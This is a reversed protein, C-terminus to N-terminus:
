GGGGGGGDPESNRPPKTAQANGRLKQVVSTGLKRADMRSRITKVIEQDPKSGLM